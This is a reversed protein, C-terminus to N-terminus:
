QNLRRTREYDMLAITFLMLGMLELAFSDAVFLLVGGVSALAFEALWRYVAIDRM